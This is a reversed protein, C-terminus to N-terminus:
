SEKKEFPLGLAALLKRAQEDDAASTVFTIEFGRVKDILKYDLDPFISQERIGLTYNGQGDFGTLPIGRFDRVRPLAITVLRTLFDYMRIGRLTVKIGIPDGERLKFTSIAKKAKTVLPKQGTIVSLQQVMSDLSKKDKLAEGMSANVVIKRLEPVAMPNKIGLEKLLKPRIETRYTKLMTTM